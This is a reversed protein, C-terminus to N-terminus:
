KPIQLIKNSITKQIRTKNYILTQIYPQTMYHHNNPLITWMKQKAIKLDWSMMQDIQHINQHLLRWKKLHIFEIWIIIHHIIPVMLIVEKDWDLMKHDIRIGISFIMLWLPTSGMCQIRPIQSIQQNKLTTEIKWGKFKQKDM